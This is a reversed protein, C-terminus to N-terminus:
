GHLLPKVELLLTIGAEMLTQTGCSYRLASPAHHPLDWLRRGSSAIEADRRSRTLGRLMDLGQQSVREFDTSPEHHREHTEGETVSM